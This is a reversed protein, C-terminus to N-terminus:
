KKSVKIYRTMKGNEDWKFVLRGIEKGFPNNPFYKWIKIAQQLFTYPGRYESM